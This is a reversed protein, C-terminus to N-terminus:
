PLTGPPPTTEPLVELPVALQLLTGGLPGASFSHRGALNRVRREINPLGHGSGSSARADKLGRGDDEVEMSLSGEGFAIRVRCRSGGSHRIANSVAERLVMREANAWLVALDLGVLAAPVM